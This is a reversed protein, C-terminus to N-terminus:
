TSIVDGAVLPRRFLTRRLMEGSGMLRMNKQAPAITIRKAPKLEARKVTVFDGMSVDANARQLGDLRILELGEDEPYPPLVMAATVRKGDIEIIDGETLGLAEFARRSLRATGKGVD